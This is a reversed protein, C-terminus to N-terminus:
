DALGLFQAVRTMFGPPEVPEVVINEEEVPEVWGEPAMANLTRLAAEESDAILTIGDVVYTDNDKFVDRNFRDKIIM